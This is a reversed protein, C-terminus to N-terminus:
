PRAVTRSVAPWRAEARAALDPEALFRTRSAESRFLYLRGDRLVFLTPDADVAEGAAVAAADHGALRPAYRDPHDQFARRNAASTFRWAVGAWILEHDPFGLSPGEPLHYSVPDHGALAMGTQRDVAYGQGAGVAPPLYDLGAAAGMLLGLLAMAGAISSVKVM